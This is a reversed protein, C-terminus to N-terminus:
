TVSDETVLMRQFLMKLRRSVIEPALFTCLCEFATSSKLLVKIARWRVTEITFLTAFRKATLAGELLMEVRWSMDVTFLTALRKATLAVERLVKVRCNMDKDAFLTALRKATM